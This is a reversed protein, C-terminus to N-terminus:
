NSEALDFQLVFKAGQDVESECWIKGNMTEVYKKAISLGLGSSEEDGTPKASLKVYREFLFKMDKESIGPGQDQVSIEIKNDLCETSIIIETQEKSFKIANSIINELIKTLYTRDALIFPDSDTLNMRLIISKKDSVIKLTTYAEDILQHVDIQTIQYNTKNADIANTDLIKTIMDRQRDVLDNILNISNVTEENLKPNIMKVISALGKIQNLPSRLDHSVIQILENKENNIEILQNNQQIIEEKNEELEQTRVLVLNELDAKQKKINSLRLKYLLTLISVLALFLCLKFILTDWWPAVIEIYISDGEENWLLDNNSGIVKFLYNGPPVNTYNATNIENATIWEKDFNELKYKYRNNEPSNYNLAIFGFSFFNQNHALIITDTDELPQNIIKSEDNIKVYENYLKFDTIHIPPIIKNDSIQGPQFSVVGYTGLFIEGSDSQYYANSNFEVGDFYNKFTQTETEFRSIGENHSVWLNNNGDELVCYLSTNAIGHATGYNTFTLSEKNLKNLGGGYTAVWINGSSDENIHTVRDNSLSKSNGEEHEFHLFLKTNPDYRDLGNSGFGIWYVGDKDEFVLEVIDSYLSNKDNPDHKIKRFKGTDRDMINLGQDTSIWLLGKSDEYISSLQNSSISHEDLKNPSYSTFKESNIDFKNLGRNTAIWAIDNDDIYLFKVHSSSLSNAGNYQYTTVELTQRNIKKLGDVSSGVWVFGKSDVSIAHLDAHPSILNQHNDETYQKFRAHYKGIKNIGGRMGVWLDSANDIYLANVRPYEVKLKKFTSTKKNFKYLYGGDSGIWIEDEDSGLISQIINNNIISHDPYEFKILTDDSQDFKLLGAGNTGLWLAEGDGWICLIDNQGVSSSSKYTHHIFERRKSDFQNLGNSTGIWLVDNTDVYLSSIEDASLTRNDLPNNNFHEFTNANFDFRCLGNKTGIWIVGDSTKALASIRNHILSNPNGEENKYSTFEDTDINYKNLGGSKTGIWLDQNDDEILATIYSDSISKPDLVDNKFIKFKVGDFRNLGDQSGFWIYGYKDQHIANISAQSLGDNKGYFEFPQYNKQWSYLNLSMFM